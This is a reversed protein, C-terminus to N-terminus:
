QTTVRPRNVWSSRTVTISEWGDRIPGNATTMPELERPRVEEPNRFDERAEETGNYHPNTGSDHPTTLEQRLRENLWERPDAMEAPARRKREVVM